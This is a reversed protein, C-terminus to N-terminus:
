GPGEKNGCYVHGVFLLKTWILIQKRCASIDISIPVIRRQDYYDQNHIIYCLITIIM